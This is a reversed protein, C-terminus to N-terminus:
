SPHWNGAMWEIWRGHPHSRALVKDGSTLLFSAEVADSVPGPHVVGPAENALWVARARQVTAAFRLRQEADLYSLVASHFVVLTAERPAAAAVELLDAVADGRVMMPPDRRALEIAARFRALRDTQDPWVCAELWRVEADDSVDIPARDLGMRWVVSPLQTPVPLPARAESALRVPSSGLAQRAAGIRYEYAYRDPFLCLGASAGVELLALPPRLAALAPLLVACRGVENTQTRRVRVLDLLEGAHDLVFARFAAPSEYPAGLFRAAAFFLNPQPTGLSALLDLLAEDEAVALSLGFYVSSDNRCELEGFRRFRGSIAALPSLPRSM